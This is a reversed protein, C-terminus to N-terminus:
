SKFDISPLWDTEFYPLKLYSLFSFDFAAFDLGNLYYELEKPIYINLILYSLMLQIQNLLSFMGVASQGAIAVGITGIVVSSLISVITAMKLSDISEQPIAPSECEGELTEYAGACLNCKGGSVKDLALDFSCDICNM